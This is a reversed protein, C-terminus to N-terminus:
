ELARLRAVTTEDLDFHCFYRRAFWRFFLNFRPVMASTPDAVDRRPLRIAQSSRAEEPM